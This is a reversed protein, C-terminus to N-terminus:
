WYVPNATFHATSFYVLRNGNSGLPKVRRIHLDLFCVWNILLEQVFRIGQSKHILNLHSFGIQSLSEFVMYLRRLHYTHISHQANVKLSDWGFLWQKLGLFLM